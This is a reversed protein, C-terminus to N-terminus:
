KMQQSFFTSESLNRHLGEQLGHPSWRGEKRANLHAATAKTALMAATFETLPTDEQAVIENIDASIVTAHPASFVAEITEIAQKVSQHKASDQDTSATSITNSVDNLALQNARNILKEHM